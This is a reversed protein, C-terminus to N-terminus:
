NKNPRNLFFNAMTSNEFFYKSPDEGTFEQFNSIFHSQDYFGGLQAVESWSMKKGQLLTFIYNFRVIRSYFKPSLGIYKNFLRELKRENIGLKETLESVSILGNSEFILSLADRVFGDNEVEKLELEIFFTNLLKIKDQYPINSLLRDSISLFENYLISNLDMVKDTISSMGVGFLQTLTAPKFKIGIMGSAGTNELLFHNRIQGALLMKPQIQWEGSINIRYADGYHFIIEPFGDPIIKQQEITYDENEVVWYCDVLASLSLPPIVRDYLM